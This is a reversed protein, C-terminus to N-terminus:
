VVEEKDENNFKIRYAFLEMGLLTFIFMFLVLLCAFFQIDKFTIIMKALLDRFSTWSRALKFVRLLRVARLSSIAGGGLGGEIFTSIIMEVISIIVVTGDFINFSDGCYDRIGMGLLKIVMEAIFIYSLIMNVFELYTQTEYTIPYKDFALVLTNVLIAFTMSFTFLDHMCIRFFFLYFKNTRARQPVGEAEDEDM